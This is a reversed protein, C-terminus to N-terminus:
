LFKRITKTGEVGNFGNIYVTGPTNIYFSIECVVNDWFGNIMHVVIVASLKLLYGSNNSALWAPSSAVWHEDEKM